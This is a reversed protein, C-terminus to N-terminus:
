HELIWQICENLGQTVPLASVFQAKAKLKETANAVACHIVENNIIDADGDGVMYFTASPYRRKLQGYGVSKSVGLPTAIAIGYKPNYDLAGLGKPLELNSGITGMVEAAFRSDIKTKGDPDTVLAFFAISQQRYGDLLVLRSLPDFHRGEKLWTTSDGVMSLYGSRRFLNDAQKRYNSIGAINAVLITEQGNQVVAGNEGILIGTEIGLFKRFYNRLRTIPTDSNPVIMIGTKQAAAITPRIDATTQYCQDCVVGDMDVMVIKM